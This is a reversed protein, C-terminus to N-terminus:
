RGLRRRVYRVAGDRDSVEGREQGEAILSLIRGVEPGQDVSFIEMVDRGTLLPEPRRRAYVDYYFRVMHGVVKRLGEDEVGRTARADAVALVLLVLGTEGGVARFFHARTRASPADLAALVFVRHHNRTVVSLERALRRGLRLGMAAEGALGAGTLEHGRFRLEGGERSMAAPKGMDHVFACLKLMAAMPVAGLSGGFFVRLEDGFAGQGIEALLSDAEAVVSLVHATLDYGELDRWSRTQEFVAAMLDTDFLLGLAEATGSASFIKLTEEGVRERSVRALLAGRRRMIALLGEDIALGLTQSLRVARLARLPDDDIASPSCPRLRGAAADALGGLPDVLSPAGLPVAMANVTFDRLALDSAIAGGRLPAIDVTWPGGDDKVVVRSTGSERDLVFAAAGLRRALERAVPWPRGRVVLDYDRGPALGLAANRLVGGVLWTAGQPAVARVACFVPEDELTGLLRSVFFAPEPRGTADIM